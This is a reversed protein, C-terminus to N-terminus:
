FHIIFTTGAGVESEAHISGGMAEIQTKVLFLGVGKAEKHEHFTKHLGFLKTGYKELDIGQGNDKVTMGISTEKVFTAVHIAPKRDPSRYKLANSLLNQFISELYAKSYLIAAAQSFDFTIHAECQILDGELSQVVKDFIDKFRIEVRDLTAEKKVKITEMLENMTEGLNQSVKKLKDFIQQYDAVSSNHDLLGILAKINGIPSRLNHSILHAFEDLARNQEQLNLALAELNEKSRLLEEESKKRETIDIASAYLMQNKRDATASWFLWKYAGDKCRFRNEFGMLHGNELVKTTADRTAERDDPHIMDMVDTTHLEEDSWGLLQTWTPNYRRFNGDFATIVNLNVTHNFLLYNEGAIKKLEDEAAKQLTIDRIFGEILPGSVDSRIGVAVEDVWRMSGDSHVIRYRMHFNRELQLCLEMEKIIDVRDDPHYLDSLRIKHTLFDGAKYGTITRVRENVYIMDTAEGYRRLYIIGPINEALRRFQEENEASRAEGVQKKIDNHLVLMVKDSNVYSIWGSSWHDGGPVLYEIFASDQNKLVKAITQRHLRLTEGSMVDTLNKGLYGTRLEDVKASSKRTWVNTYTGDKNIEFAIDDMSNLLADIHAQSDKITQEARKQATVNMAMFAYGIHNHRDDHLTRVSMSVPIRTGDKHIYTWEQGIHGQPDSSLLKLLRSTEQVASDDDGTHPLYKAKIEGSDHLILPTCLGKMETVTYGTLDEAAKNFTCIIGELTTSIVSLITTQVIAQHHSLADTLANLFLDGQGQSKKSSSKGM